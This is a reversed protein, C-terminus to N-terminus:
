KRLSIILQNGNNDVCKQWDILVYGLLDNSDIGPDHDYIDVRIPQM